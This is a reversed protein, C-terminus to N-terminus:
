RALRRVRNRSPDNELLPEQAHDIWIGKEVERVKAEPWLTHLISLAQRAHSRLRGPNSDAAFQETLAAWPIVTESAAAYCRVILWFAIDQVQTPGEIQRWLMRPLVIHHRRIDAYLDANLRIGYRDEMGALSEQGEIAAKDISDPLFSQSIITYAASGRGGEGHRQISIALGEIRAFRERLQQNSRGSMSIGMERQYENASSWPIFPSESRIARDFIWALLKRDAGFPMEVQPTITSFTVSLYSGDGLRARRTIQREDTRSYPLSCMIMAQALKIYDEGLSGDHRAAAIDGVKLAQRAKALRREERFNRVPASKPPLVEPSASSVTCKM